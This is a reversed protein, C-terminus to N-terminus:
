QMKYVTKSHVFFFWRKRKLGQNKLSNFVQLHDVHSENPKATERKVGRTQQTEKWNREQWIDAKIEKVFSTNLECRIIWLCLIFSPFTVFICFNLCLLGTSRLSISEMKGTFTSIHECVKMSPIISFLKQNLHCSQTVKVLIKRM